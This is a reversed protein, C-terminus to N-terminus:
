MELFATKMSETVHLSFKARKNGNYIYINLMSYQITVLWTGAEMTTASRYQYWTSRLERRARCTNKASVDM